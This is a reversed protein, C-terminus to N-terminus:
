EGQSTALRRAIDARLAKKGVKTAPLHDILVLHEPLKYRAVGHDEMSQVAVPATPWARSDATMGRSAKAWHRFISPLTILSDM